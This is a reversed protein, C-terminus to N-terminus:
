GARCAAGLAGRIQKKWNKKGSNKKKIALLAQSHQGEEDLETHHAWLDKYKSVLFDRMELAEV